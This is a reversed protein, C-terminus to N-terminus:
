IVMAERMITNSWPVPILRLFSGSGPVQECPAAASLQNEGLYVITWLEKDKILWPPLSPLAPSPLPPPPLPLHRYGGSSPPLHGLRQRIIFWGIIAICGRSCLASSCLACQQPTFQASSSCSCWSRRAEGHHWWWYWWLVRAGKSSQENGSKGFTNEKCFIRCFFNRMCFTM